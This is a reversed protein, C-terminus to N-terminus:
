NEKLQDTISHDGRGIAVAGSQVLEIVGYPEMARLLAELKPLSGISEIVVSEPQVDVVHARFLDVVQLVGTRRSEDAHVKMMLLRREVSEEPHLEVIKLVNILKNLQRKVQAIPASDAEVIITMRSIGPQETEGVALSKINFSRRAFLGSVRTLVGPKNEVLVSLTHRM